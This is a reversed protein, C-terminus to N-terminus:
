LILIKQFRLLKIKEKQEAIECQSQCYAMVSLWALLGEFLPHPTQPRADWTLVKVGTTSM